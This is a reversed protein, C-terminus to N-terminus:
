TAHVCPPKSRDPLKWQQPAEAQKSSRRGVRDRSWDFCYCVPVDDAPDKAFVKVDLDEIRFYPVSDNSFYVVACKPDDCFYYQANELQWRREGRVLSRVTRLQVRSSTTQSVPCNASLPADTKDTVLCCEGNQLRENCAIKELPFACCSNM